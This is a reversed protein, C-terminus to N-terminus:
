SLVRYAWTLVASSCGLLRISQWGMSPYRFLSHKPSVHHFWPVYMCVTYIYKCKCIMYPINYSSHCNRDQVVLGGNHTEIQVIYYVVYLYLSIYVTCILIHTHRCEVESNDDKKFIHKSRFALFLKKVLMLNM